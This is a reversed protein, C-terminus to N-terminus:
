PPVHRRRYFSMIINDGCDKAAVAVSDGCRMWYSEGIRLHCIYHNNNIYSLTAMLDFKEGISPPPPGAAHVAFWDRPEHETIKICRYFYHNDVNKFPQDLLDDTKHRLEYSHLVPGVCEVRSSTLTVINPTTNVCDNTGYIRIHRIHDNWAGFIDILAYLVETADAQGREPFRAPMHHTLLSRLARISRTASESSSSLCFSVTHSHVLRRFSTNKEDDGGCMLQESRTSYPKIKRQILWSSAVHRLILMMADVFCSNEHQYPVIIM